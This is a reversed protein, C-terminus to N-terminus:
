IFKVDMKINYLRHYWMCKQKKNLSLSCTGWTWYFLQTLIELPVRIFFFRSYTDKLWIMKKKDSLIIVVSSSSTSPWEHLLEASYFRVNLIWKRICCKMCIKLFQSEGSSPLPAFSIFLGLSILYNQKGRGGGWGALITMHDDPLLVPHTFCISIFINECRLLQFEFKVELVSLLRFKETTRRTPASCVDSPPLEAIYFSSYFCVINFCNNPVKFASNILCLVSVSSFM